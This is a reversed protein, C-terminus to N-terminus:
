SQRHSPNQTKERISYVLKQEKGSEEITLDLISKDDIELLQALDKPILLYKSGKIRTPTLQIPM